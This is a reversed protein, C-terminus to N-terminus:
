SHLHSSIIPRSPTGNLTFPVYLADLVTDRHDKPIGLRNLQDDDMKELSQQFNLGFATKGAGSNQLAVVLWTKLGETSRFWSKLTVAIARERNVFPLALEVAPRAISRLFNLFSVNLRLDPSSRLLYTV